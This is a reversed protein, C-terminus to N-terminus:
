QDKLMKKMFKLDKRKCNLMAREDWQIYQGLFLGNSGVKKIENEDPYPMEILKAKTNAMDAMDNTRLGLLGGFEELWRRDLIGEDM